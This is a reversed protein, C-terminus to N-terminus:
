PSFPLRIASLTPFGRLSRGFESLLQQGVTPNRALNVQLDAIVASLDAKDQHTENDWTYVVENYLRELHTQGMLLSHDVEFISCYSENLLIAADYTPIPGNAGTWPQAFFHELGALKRNDIYELSSLPSGGGHSADGAVAVIYSVTGQAPRSM